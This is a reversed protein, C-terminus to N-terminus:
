QTEDFTRRVIGYGGRGHVQLVEYHGLRGFSDPRASPTLFSLDAAANASGPGAATLQEVAPVNLFGPAEAHSRLLAELRRRLAADGACAVDLFAAREAPRKDLAQEFIEQETM